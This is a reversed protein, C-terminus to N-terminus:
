VREMSCVERVGGVMGAERGRGVPPRQRCSALGGPEVAGGGAGGVQNPVDGGWGGVVGGGVVDGWGNLVSSARALAALM